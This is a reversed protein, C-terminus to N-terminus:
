QEIVVSRTDRDASTMRLKQDMEYLVVERQYRLNRKSVGNLM